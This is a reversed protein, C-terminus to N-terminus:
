RDLLTTLLFQTIGSADRSIAQDLAASHGSATSRTSRKRRITSMEFSLPFGSIKVHQQRKPMKPMAWNPPITEISNGFWRKYFFFPTMGINEGWQRMIKLVRQGLSLFTPSELKENIL